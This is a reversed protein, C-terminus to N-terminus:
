FRSREFLAKAQSSLATWDLNAVVHERAAIGMSQLTDDDDLMACVKASITSVSTADIVYGTQGDLMTEKTGGSDGAIVAKGCSQAEVLVMGFGEIDQGITRNPLIFVDCQQYCQIMQEDSIESM